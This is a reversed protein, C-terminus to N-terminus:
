FNLRPLRAGPNILRVPATGADLSKRLNSEQLLIKSWNKRNEETRAVHSNMILDPYFPLETMHLPFGFAYLASRVIEIAVSTIDRKEVTWAEPPLLVADQTNWLDVPICNGYILTCLTSICEAELKKFLNRKCASEPFGAPDPLLDETICAVVTGSPDFKGERMSAAPRENAKGAFGCKIRNGDYLFYVGVHKPLLRIEKAICIHMIPFHGYRCPALCTPM